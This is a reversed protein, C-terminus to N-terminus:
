LRFSNYIAKLNGSISLGYFQSRPALRFSSQQSHPINGTVPGPMSAVHSSIHCFVAASNVFNHVMMAYRVWLKEHSLPQVLFNPSVSRSRRDIDIDIMTTRSTVRCKEDVVHAYSADSFEFLPFMKIHLEIWAWDEMSVSIVSWCWLMKLKAEVERVEPREAPDEALVRWMADCIEQPRQYNHSNIWLSADRASVPGPKRPAPPALLSSRCLFTYWTSQCKCLSFFCGM